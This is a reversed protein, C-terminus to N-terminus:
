KLLEPFNKIARKYRPVSVGTVYSDNPHHVIYDQHYDEAIYFKDFPVIEVAIGNDYKGSKELQQIYNELQTKQEDNNYFFISRYQRGRDNGQGNVQTIDGSNFYVKLLDEFSVEAANYTVEVSEAHSTQGSGVSEYTPNTETGGSYGSVVEKVGKVAEFIEEVCWFCGQAFVVTKIEEPGAFKADEKAVFKLADGNMCYRLGTPQPGDNFVHGLHGDCRACVVEDRSMGMSNDAGITISKSSYNDFFSPWGTGSEFKTNANYVPNDCGACLYIGEKKNKNFPHSGPNETGKERLIEYQDDTLKSKWYTDPKDIKTTWTTDIITTETKESTASGGAADANQALNSCGFLLHSFTISILLIKYKLM